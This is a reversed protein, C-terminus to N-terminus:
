VLIRRIDNLLSVLYTTFRAGSAGDIARHDYSLSLPLIDRPEFTEGNWWPRKTMRSVGLIATEPPNIIPTFATGGIGGLSSISFSGGSIDEAKLKRERARKGLDELEVAIERISKTDANRLVPVMLGEPTDVAIGIHYYHKLILEGAKGDYSSNFEPFKQLAAVVAKVIFPLISIKVQQEDKLHSMEEKLKQRFAELETVDAEDFQTVHPITQWSRQLHPGSIKQIRSLPKREIEGYISFDELEFQAGPAMAVGGGAGSLAQKVLKQIDERLIRGKPGSGEVTELSVGLERAYQRVSPTAHYVAGPKQANVLDKSAAPEAEPKTEKAEKPKEEQEEPRAEEKKAQPTKEPAQEAPVKDPAKGAPVKDEQAAEEGAVEIDALLTGKSVLDGEKVHVTKITGGYPSPIDTVAKASELSVLPDDVGITDGQSIYVEIIAVDAFDGIDPVTIQKIAM